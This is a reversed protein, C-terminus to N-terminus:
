WPRPTPPSPSPADADPDAFDLSEYVEAMTLTLGIAPLAITGDMGNIAAPKLMFDGSPGRSYVHAVASLQEVFVYHAISPVANCEALKNTRDELQTEASLVEFVVTPKPSSLNRPNPSGNM